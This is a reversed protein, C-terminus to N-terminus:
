ITRVKAVAEFVEAAIGEDVLEKENGRVTAPAPSAGGEVGDFIGGAGRPESWGDPPRGRL